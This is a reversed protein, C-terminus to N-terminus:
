ALIRPGKSETHVSHQLFWSLSLRFPTLLALHPLLSVSVRQKKKEDNLKLKNELMWDKVDATCTQLSLIMSDYDTPPVSKCLQTDDAFMEQNVSLIEIILPLPTTYLIFLVPGLVSGQTVGFDLPAISTRNDQVTVFQTREYLYSRFWFLSTSRIGFFSGLRSLLIEHDFTDFATSLDLLLLLSIKDEDGTCLIHNVTSM